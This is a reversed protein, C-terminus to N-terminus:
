ATPLPHVKIARGTMKEGESGAAYDNIGSLFM